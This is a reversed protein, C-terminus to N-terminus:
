DEKEKEIFGKIGIWGPAFLAFLEYGVIIIIIIAAVYVFSMLMILFTITCRIIINWSDPLNCVILLPYSVYTIFIAMAEFLLAPTMFAEYYQFFEFPTRSDYDSPYVRLNRSFNNLYNADIPGVILIFLIFAFVNWGSIRNPREKRRQYYEEITSFMLLGGVAPSTLFTLITLMLAKESPISFRAAAFGILFVMFLNMLVYDSTWYDAAINTVLDIFFQYGSCKTCAFYYHNVNYVLILDNVVGLVMFAKFINKLKVWGMKVATYSLICSAIKM